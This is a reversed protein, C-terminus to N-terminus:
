IRGSGAAFLFKEHQSIQGTRVIVIRLARVESRYGHDLEATRVVPMIRYQCTGHKRQVVDGHNLSPRFRVAPWAMLLPKVIATLIVSMIGTGHEAM